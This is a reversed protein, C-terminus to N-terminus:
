ARRKLRVSEHGMEALAIVAHGRELGQRVLEAGPAGTAGVVALRTAPRDNHRDGETVDHPETVAPEDTVRTRGQTTAACPTSRRATM